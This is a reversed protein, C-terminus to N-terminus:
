LDTWFFVEVNYLLYYCGQFGLELFERERERERQRERERYTHIYIGCHGLAEGM